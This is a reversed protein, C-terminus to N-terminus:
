MRAYVEPTPWEFNIESESVKEGWLPLKKLGGEWKTCPERTHLNIGNACVNAENNIKVIGVSNARIDAMNASIAASNDSISTFNNAIKDSKSSVNTKLGSIENGFESM